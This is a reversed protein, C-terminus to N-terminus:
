RPPPAHQLQGCKEGACKSDQGRSVNRQVERAIEEGGWCGGEKVRRGGGEEEGEGEEEEEEEEEEEDEEV